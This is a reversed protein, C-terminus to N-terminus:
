SSNGQKEAGLRGRKAETGRHKGGRHRQKETDVTGRLKTGVTGSNRQM